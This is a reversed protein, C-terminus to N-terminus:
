NGAIEQYDNTMDWIGIDQISRTLNLWTRECGKSAYNEIFTEGYLIGDVNMRIYKMRFTGPQAKIHRQHNEDLEWVNVEVNSISLRAEDLVKLLNKSLQDQSGECFLRIFLSCQVRMIEYLRILHEEEDVLKAKRVFYTRGSLVQEKSDSGEIAIIKLSDNETVTVNPQFRAKSSSGKRGYNFFIRLPETLKESDHINGDLLELTM